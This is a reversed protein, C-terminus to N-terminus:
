QWALSLKETYPNLSLRLVRYSGSDFDSRIAASSEVKMSIGRVSVELEHTGPPIELTSSFPTGAVRRFVNKRGEITESWLKSGNLHVTIVSEKLRNKFTLRVRANLPEPPDSVASVEASAGSVAPSEPSDSSPGRGPLHRESWVEGPLVSAGQEPGIHLVLAGGAVFVLILSLLAILNRTSRGQSRPGEESRRTMVQSPQPTGQVRSVIGPSLDPLDRVVSPEERQSAIERVMGGLLQRTVDDTSPPGVAEILDRATAFRLEPSKELARVLANSAEPDCDPWVLSPPTPQDNVIKYALGGISESVFPATGTLARYLVAAFAWLDSVADVREGLLQEPSMYTPTGLVQGTATIAEEGIRVIGFDSLKVTGSHDILLNQPKIDRHIIGARHATDLADAVQYGVELVLDFDLRDVCELIEEFSCGEVLEMALYALGTEQDRDADFIGVVGPHRLRGAARAEALFRQQIESQEERTAMWPRVVKVAIERDINPDYARYVSGM